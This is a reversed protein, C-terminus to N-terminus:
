SFPKEKLKFKLQADSGITATIFKSACRLFNRTFFGKAYIDMRSPIPTYGIQCKAQDATMGVDVTHYKGSEIAIRYLNYSLWSYFFCKSSHHYDMGCCISHLIGPEEQLVFMGIMQGEHWAALLHYDGRTACEQFFNLDYLRDGHSRAVNVYLRYATKAYESWDCTHYTATCGYDLFLRKSKTYNNRHWRALSAIFDDFSKFPSIDTRWRTIQTISFCSNEEKQKNADILKFALDAKPDMTFPTVINFDLEIVLPWAVWKEAGILRGLSLTNLSSHNTLPSATVWMKDKSM